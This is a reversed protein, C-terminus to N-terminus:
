QFAAFEDSLLWDARVNDIKNATSPSQDDLDVTTLVRVANLVSAAILPQM